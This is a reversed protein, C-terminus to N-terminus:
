CRRRSRLAGSRPGAIPPDPTDVTLEWAGLRVWNGTKAASVTTSGGTQDSVDLTWDRKLHLNVLRADAPRAVPTVVLYGRWEGSVDTAGCKGDPGRPTPVWSTSRQRTQGAALTVGPTAPLTRCRGVDRGVLLRLRRESRAKCRRGHSAGGLTKSM